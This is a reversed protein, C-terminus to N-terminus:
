LRTQKTIRPLALGIGLGLLIVGLLLPVLGTRITAIASLEQELTPEDEIEIIGDKTVTTRYALQHDTDWLERASSGLGRAVLFGYEVTASVPVRIETVFTDGDRVMPTYAIGDQIETGAPAMEVILSEGGDSTWVLAVQEAGPLRYRLEQTAISSGVPSSVSQDGLLSLETEVEVVNDREADIFQYNARGDWIRVDTGARTKTVLFGYDVTMGAPASLQGVFVDGDRTMPTHMVQNEITTGPPRFEEPLLGWGDLGWVLLVESADPLHLRIEQTILSTSPIVVAGQETSPMLFSYLEVPRSEARAVFQYEDMGDWLRVPDGGQLVTVLFGYDITTGAVVQVQTFFADGQRVMPTHMVNNKVV